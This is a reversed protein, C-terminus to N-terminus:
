SPKTTTKGFPRFAYCWILLGLLYTIGVFLDAGDRIAAAFGVGHALLRIGWAIAAGAVTIGLGACVLMLQPDRNHSVILAGWLVLTLVAAGFNLLQSTGSFWPTEFLKRGPFIVFPLVVMAAMVVWLIKRAFEQEKRAEIARQILVSLLVFLLLDWTLEGTWYIVRYLRSTREVLHFLVAGGANILLQVLIYAFFVAYKALSGLLLFCLLVLGLVGALIQFGTFVLTM